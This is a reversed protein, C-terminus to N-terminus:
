GVRGARRLAVAFFPLEGVLQWVPLFLFVLGGQADPSAWFTQYLLAGTALLLVLACAVMVALASPAHRVRRSVWAGAGFPVLAWLAFPAVELYWRLAEPQGAHVMSLLTVAGGMAFLAWAVICRIEM